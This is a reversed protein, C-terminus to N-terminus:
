KKWSVGYGQPSRYPLGIWHIDQNNFILINTASNSSNEKQNVLYVQENSTYFDEGLPIREEYVLFVDEPSEMNKLDKNGISLIRLQYYCSADNEIFKDLAIIFNGTYGSLKTLDCFMTYSDLKPILYDVLCQKELKYRDFIEQTIKSDESKCVWTGFDHGNGKGQCQCDKSPHNQFEQYDRGEFFCSNSFKKRYLKNALCRMQEYYSRTPILEEDIGLSQKEERSIDLLENPNEYGQRYFFNRCQDERYDSYMAGVVFIYIILGCIFFTITIKKLFKKNKKM